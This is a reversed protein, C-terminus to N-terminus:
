EKGRDAQDVLARQKDELPGITAAILRHKRLLSLAPADDPQAAAARLTRDVLALDDRQAALRTAVRSRLLDARGLAQRFGAHQDTLRQIAADYVAEPYRAELGSVRGTLAGHILTLVRHALRHRSMHHRRRHILARAPTTGGPRRHGARLRRWAGCRLRPSSDV